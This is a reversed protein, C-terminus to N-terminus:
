NEETAKLESIDLQKLGSLDFELDKDTVQNFEFKYDIITSQVEHSSDDEKVTNPTIFGELEELRVLSGTTKEIYLIMNQHRLMYCDKGNVMATNLSYQLISKPSDLENKLMEIFDFENARVKRTYNEVTYGDEGFVFYCKGNNIISIHGVENNYNVLMNEDKVWTETTNATWGQYYYTRIYYNNSKLYDEMKNAISKFVIFNRTFFAIIIFILAYIVILLTYKMKKFRTNYKKAYNIEKEVNNTQKEFDKKMNDLIDNCEICEKLHKEIFTNTTDSTLKEVYNPLLDQVIKCKEKNNM